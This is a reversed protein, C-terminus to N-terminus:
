RVLSRYLSGMYCNEFIARRRYRLPRLLRRNRVRETTRLASDMARETERLTAPSTLFDSLQARM